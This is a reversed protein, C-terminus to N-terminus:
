HNSAEACGKVQSQLGLLFGVEDDPLIFACVEFCDDFGFIPAEYDFGVAEEGDLVSAFGQM